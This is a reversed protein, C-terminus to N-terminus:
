RAMAGTEPVAESLEELSVLRDLEKEVPAKRRSLWLYLGSILVVILVLDFLAWLIQLPLGGYDGFHLPRCVELACIGPCVGPQSSGALKPM